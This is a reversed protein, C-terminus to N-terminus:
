IRGRFHVSYKSGADKIKKATGPTGQTPLATESEIILENLGSIDEHAYTDHESGDIFGAADTYVRSVDRLFQELDILFVLVNEVKTGGPMESAIRLIGIGCLFEQFRRELGQPVLINNWAFGPLITDIENEM